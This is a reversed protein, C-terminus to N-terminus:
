AVKEAKRQRMCVTGPPLRELGLKRKIESRAESKTFAAATHQGYGPVGFVWVPPTKKSPRASQAQKATHVQKRTKSPMAEGEPPPESLKEALSIAVQVAFTVATAPEGLKGFLVHAQRLRATGKKVAAERDDEAVAEALTRAAKAEVKKLAALQKDAPLHAIRNADSVSVREEKVAAAIRKPAKTLVAKAYCVSRKSVGAMQAAQATARGNVGDFAQHLNAGLTRGPATQGHAQRKRAEEELMPTARAAVLIRQKTSLQRRHFNLSMIFLVLSGDGHWERVPLPIKLETAARRRNRGDILWVFKRGPERWVWAPELVGPGGQAYNARIDEKLQAYEAEAIMPFLGAVKHIVLSKTQATTLNPSIAMWVAVESM